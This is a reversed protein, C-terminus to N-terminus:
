VQIKADKKKIVHVPFLYISIFIYFLVSSGRSNSYSNKFKVFVFINSSSTMINDDVVVSTTSTNGAAASSIQKGTQQMYFNDVQEKLKGGKMRLRQVNLAKLENKIKRQRELRKYLFEVLAAESWRRTM